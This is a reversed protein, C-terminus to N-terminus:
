FYSSHITDPKHNLKYKKNSVDAELDKQYSDKFESLIEAYQKGNYLHSDPQYALSKDVSFVSYPYFWTMVSIFLVIIGIFGGGTWRIVKIKEGM